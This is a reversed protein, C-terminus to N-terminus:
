TARVKALFGDVATRLLGSQDDLEGANALVESAATGTASAAMTVGGIHMTIESSGIAVLQINRAIERTAAGQQEIAASIAVSIENMQAITETIGNIAMVANETSQQMGTVQGSIQETAKATQDALAKVEAAVVAFGRGSDGARAAEITANLALLNTQEAISHILKVVEGIKEAGTSLVQVTANTREADKVARGAIEGSRAVQRAIEAVSSSLEEAASAVTGVNSSANESASSVSSARTSADNATATMLQATAQMDAAAAAVTRVVGNVSREFDDALNEMTARRDAAAQQRREGEVQELQRIRIANEKFIEVTAAMKGVEDSRDIGPIEGELEGAALAQMCSGLEALPRSISRGTSWAIGSAVAGIGLVSLGLTWIIPRLKTDLDDLYAGTGIYIGFSPISAAYGVKRVPTQEGPRFYEYRLTEEGKAAVGDRLERMLKRGNTVEDLRNVGIFKPNPALIGIGDMTNGFLYGNGSDYTMSNGRRGFEAIADEKSLKGADVDKQLGLAMNRAVDVIAHIQELRADLMEEQMLHTALLGAGCLGLLTAGLLVALKHAITLNSLKL